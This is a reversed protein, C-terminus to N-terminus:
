DHSPSEPAARARLAAACLALAPASANVCYDPDSGRHLWRDGDQFLPLVRARHKGGWLPGWLTLDVAHSEPVLSLAADISATYAPVADHLRQGKSGLNGWSDAGCDLCDFGTDSQAGSRKTNTHQCYGLCDYYIAKDISRDAGEAAQIREALEILSVVEEL